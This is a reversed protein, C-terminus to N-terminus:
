DGWLWVGRNSLSYFEDNLIRAHVAEEHALRQFLAQVAPTPAEAAWTEYRARAAEEAEIAKTLIDAVTELNAVQRPAGGGELGPRIERGVYPEPTKGELLADRYAALNQYHYGEFDALQRLLDKGRPDAVQEMAQLYFAQAERERDMAQALADLMAQQEEAM